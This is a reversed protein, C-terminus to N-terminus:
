SYDSCKLVSIAACVLIKWNSSEFAHIAQGVLAITNMTQSHTSGNNEVVYNAHVTIMDNYITGLYSLTGFSMSLVNELKEKWVSQKTTITIM